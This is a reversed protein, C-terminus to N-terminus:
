CNDTVVSSRDQEDRMLITVALVTGLAMAVMTLKFFLRKPKTDQIRSIQPNQTSSTSNQRSRARGPLM